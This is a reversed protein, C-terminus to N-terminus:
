FFYSIAFSTETMELPSDQINQELDINRTKKISTELVLKPAVWAIGFGNGKETLANDEFFGARLFFNKFFNLQIAARMLGSSSLDEFYNMGLDLMLTLVDQFVLQGGIVVRVDEPVAKFPDILIAGVTFNTNLVKTTGMVIQRYKNQTTTGGQSDTEDTTQRYLLGFSSNKTVVSALSASLRKRKYPGERQKQYSFAGKLQSDSDAVILGSSKSEQHYHSSLPVTRQPNTNDFEFRETQFYFSSNTFFAIPAPNLIAAENILISGVGTGATSKLRTTEYDHVRADAMGSLCFVFVLLLPYFM